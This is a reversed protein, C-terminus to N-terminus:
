FKNNKLYHSPPPILSSFLYLIIAFFLLTINYPRLNSHFVSFFLCSFKKNATGRPMQLSFNKIKVTPVRLLSTSSEEKLAHLIHSCLLLLFFVQRFESVLKTSVIFNHNCDVSQRSIHSFKM